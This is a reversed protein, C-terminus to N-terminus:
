DVQRLLEEDTYEPLKIAKAPCEGACIGCKQCAEPVSEAAKKEVNVMMAKHPCSRICTLCLVCKDEDVVANSLEVEISKQSLLSHVALATAKADTIIQPIYYQGRCAGAIFIGPRNTSGPFLHVNNDQMHNQIDTSIGVIEALKNDICSHIGYTSVGVLHCSVEVTSNLLTDKATVLVENETKQITVEGDYKIITVGADRAEDYLIELYLSSVRVERCFVYVECGYKKRFDVAINLVMESSAKTEEIKLDLILSVPRRQDKTPYRTIINVLDYISVIKEEDFVSGDCEKINGTSVVVAGYKVTKEKDPTLIRANFSGINGSLEKLSSKTLIDVGSLMKEYDVSYEQFHAIQGGIKDSQEVLTTKYGCNSIEKAAHIGAIGGGVVLVSQQLEVKKTEFKNDKSSM